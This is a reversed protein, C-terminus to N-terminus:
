TELAERYVQETREAVASMAYLERARARARAVVALQAENGAGRLTEALAEALAAYDGPPVIRGCAGNELIERTGGVDSGVVPVGLSMAEKLVTSSADCGTAALVAVDCARTLRAVDDRFLTFVAAANLGLEARLRLQRDYDGGTGVLLARLRPFDNRLMALARLLQEQGKDPSLRGVLGVLQTEPAFGFERRVSEAADDPVDSGFGDALGAHITTVRAPAAGTAQLLAERIPGAVCITRDAAAGYLWRNFLHPRVPYSNHKTRVLRFSNQGLLKAAAALWCDQSGHSHVLEINRERVFRFLARLDRWLRLPRFGRSFNCVGSFNVGGAIARRELESGPPALLWVEHGRGALAQALLLAQLPQGGWDRHFDTIAIRM